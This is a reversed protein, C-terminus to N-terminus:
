CVSSGVETDENAEVDAGVLLLLLLDDDAGRGETDGEELLESGAGVLPKRLKLRSSSSLSGESSRVSRRTFFSM